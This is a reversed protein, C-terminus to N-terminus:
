KHTKLWDKRIATLHGTHYNLHAFTNTIVEKITMGVFFPGTQIKRNLDKESAGNIWELFDRESTTYYNQIETLPTGDWDGSTKPSYLQFLRDNSPASEKILVNLSFDYVAAQHALVWGLSSMCTCPRFSLDDCGAESLMRVEMDRWKRAVEASLLFVEKHVM